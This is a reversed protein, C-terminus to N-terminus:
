IRIVHDQEDPGQHLICHCDLLDYCDKSLGRTKLGVKGFARDRGDVPSVMHQVLDHVDEAAM